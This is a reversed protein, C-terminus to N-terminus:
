GAENHYFHTINTLQDTYNTLGRATYFFKEIGNDPWKRTLLRSALDFTQEFAVGDATVSNTPRNKHDYISKFVQGFANSSAILLGQNNYWNTINNGANDTVNTLRGVQSYFSSISGGGPHVINTRRGAKDYLFSTVRGLPDTISELSGCDCYSYNNTRNLPDIQRTLQRVPNYEFRWLNNLRDTFRSLDLKDYELKITGNPFAANTLRELADWSLTVTLGRSDTFDKVLGKDYTFTYSNTTELDKTQQLWNTYTGNTFYFNTTTLGGPWKISTIQRNTANITLTTVDGVADTIQRPLRDLYNDLGLLLNNDQDKVSLLDIDNTSYSLTNTRFLVTTGVTSYTSVINTRKWWNNREFYVFQSTTDPLVRGIISPRSNTGEVRPNSADKGAYDYWIKQGETYRDPSPHRAVSLTQGILGDPQLLWHKMRALNYDNTSLRYFNETNFANTRFAESLSAYQLRGWHFSNRLYMLSNDFTHTIPDTVPVDNTPYSYPILATDNTANLIHSIQRYLYLQRSGNPESILLARDVMNTGGFDYSGNKNTIAQFSTSGYPTNMNTILGQSDYAFTNNTGLTDIINTLWGNTNYQLTAKLGYPNEVETVLHYFNTNQYRVYNTKGDGDIYQVLQFVNNNTAWVFRNTGGKIDIRETPFQLVGVQSTVSTFDQFNWSGGQNSAVSTLAGTGSSKTGSGYETSSTQSRIGGCMVYQTKRNTYGAVPELYSRWNCEWGKGFGWFNNSHDINRQKYTLKLVMLDDLSTTYSMPKDIIWLNILPESVKWVPMGPGCQGCDSDSPTNNGERCEEEDCTPCKEENKFEDKPCDEEGKDNANRPDSVVVVTGSLLKGIAIGVPKGQRERTLFFGSASRRVQASAIWDSSQSAPDFVEYWEGARRMLAVYHNGNWHAVSPVPLEENLPLQVPRLRLGFREALRALDHLSFGEPPPHIDLLKILDVNSPQLQRGVQYLALAGCQNPLASNRPSNPAASAGLSGFPISLTLVLDFVIRNSNM